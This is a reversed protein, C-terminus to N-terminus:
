KPKSGTSPKINQTPKTSTNSTGSTTNKATNKQPQTRADTKAM